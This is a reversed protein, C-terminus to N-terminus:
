RTVQKIVDLYSAEPDGKTPVLYGGEGLENWAYVLAIREKTTEDPHEDMWKIADELFTKFQEPTRNPYYWGEKQNLGQPGEWPRKDWGVTLQPIYHQQSTGRWQKKTAEMLTDYPHAESGAAYGPVVNYHTRHTFGAQNPEVNCGAIALGPLGAEKSVHQMVELDTTTVGKPDFLVILPKGNVTVHQPDKFYSMWYQTATKWNETGLIEGGQHNAVLLAFKVRDKNRAKLYLNLSTHLSSRAIADKNIPGQNDRWYWCFLFFDVGNDAALDIQREMIALSDDRWGWIPEREPFEELMRLTLHSPAHKAWPQGPDDAHTNRGAWGDFYYAGISIAVPDDQSASANNNTYSAMGFALASFAFFLILFHLKM